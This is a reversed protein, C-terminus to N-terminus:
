QLDRIYFRIRALQPYEDAIQAYKGRSLLDALHNAKSKLWIVELEIDYLTILMVVDHIPPMALGHM